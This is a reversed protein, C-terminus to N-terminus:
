LCKGPVGPSLFVMDWLFSVIVSIVFYRCIINSMYLGRASHRAATTQEANSFSDMSRFSM